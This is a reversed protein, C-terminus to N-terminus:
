WKETIWDCLSQSHWKNLCQIQAHNRSHMVSYFGWSNRITASALKRAFPEFMNLCFNISKNGPICISHIIVLLLPTSLLCFSQLFTQMHLMNNRTPFNGLNELHTKTKGLTHIWGTMTIRFCDLSWGLLSRGLAFHTTMSKSVGLGGHTEQVAQWWPLSHSTWLKPNVLRM